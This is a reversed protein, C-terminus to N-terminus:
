AGNYDSAYLPRGATGFIWPYITNGQGPSASSGYKYYYLAAMQDATILSGASVTPHSSIVNYTVSVPLSGRIHIWKKRNEDGGIYSNFDREITLVIATNPAITINLNSVSIAPRSSTTYTITAATVGNIKFYIHCGSTSSDSYNGIYSDGWTVSFGTVQKNGASAGVITKSANYIRGDSSTDVTATVTAM